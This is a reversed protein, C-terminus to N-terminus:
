SQQQAAAQANLYQIYAMYDTLFKTMEQEIEEPRDFLELAPRSDPVGVAALMEIAEIRESFTPHSAFLSGREALMKQYLAERDTESMQEDRYQQFSQYMNVFAKQEALLQGIHDYVTM